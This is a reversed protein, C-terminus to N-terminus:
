KVPWVNQHEEEFTEVRYMFGNCETVIDSGNMQPSTGALAPHVSVTALVL